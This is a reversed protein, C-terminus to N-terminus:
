TLCRVVGVLNPAKGGTTSEGYKKPTIGATSGIDANALEPDAQVATFGHHYQLPMHSGNRYPVFEAYQRFHPLILWAKPLLFKWSLYLSGEWSDRVLPLVGRKGASQTPREITHGNFGLEITPQSSICLFNKSRKLTVSLLAVKASSMDKFCFLFSDARSKMLLHRSMLMFHSCGGACSTATFSHWLLRFGSILSFSRPALIRVNSCRLLVTASISIKKASFGAAEYPLPLDGLSSFVPDRSTFVTSKEAARLFAPPLPSVGA